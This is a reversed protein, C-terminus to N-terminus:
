GRGSRARAGSVAPRGGAGVRAGGLDARQGAEQGAAYGGGTLRRARGRTLRPYAEEVALDVARRRDALVLAVGPLDPGAERSRRDAEAFRQAVAAAFGVLWSRRWAAPQEGDPVGEALLARAAQVLLSAFLLEVGDVDSELGFLHMSVRLGDAGRRELRVSRCRLSGAVVHLLHAKERLYPPELEVLRNGVVQPRGAAEAAALVAQDIGYKAILEAAKATLAEAEERTCAPDEAKALLKRVKDLMLGGM